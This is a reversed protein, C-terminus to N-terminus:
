ATSQQTRISAPLNQRDMLHKLEEDTVLTNDLEKECHEWIWQLTGLDVSGNLKQRLEDRLQELSDPDSAVPSFYVQVILNRTWAVARNWQDPPVDPPRRLELSEIEESVQVVLGHFKRQESVFRVFPAVFALV